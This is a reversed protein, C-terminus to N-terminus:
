RTPCIACPVMGFIAAWLQDALRYVCLRSAVPDASARLVFAAAFRRPVVRRCIWSGEFPSFLAWRTSATTKHIITAVQENYIPTLPVASGTLLWSHLSFQAAKAFEKPRSPQVRVSEGVGSSLIMRVRVVDGTIGVYPFGESYNLLAHVLHPQLGAGRPVM